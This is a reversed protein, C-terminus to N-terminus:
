VVIGADNFRPPYLSLAVTAARLFEGAETVGRTYERGM